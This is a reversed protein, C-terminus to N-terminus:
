LFRFSYRLASSEFDWRFTNRDGKTIFDLTSAIVVRRNRWFWELWDLLPKTDVETQNQGPAKVGVGRDGVITLFDTARTSIVDLRNPGSLFGAGAKATNVMPFLIVKREAGQVQDATTLQVRNDKDM